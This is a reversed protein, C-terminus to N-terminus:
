EDWVLRVPHKEIDLLKPRALLRAVVRKSFRDDPSSDELSKTVMDLMRRKLKQRGAYLRNKITSLPVNLFDAIDEQSYENMYFLTIVERQSEPLAGVVNLVRNTTERKEAVTSPESDSSSIAP